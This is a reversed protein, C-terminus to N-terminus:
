VGHVIHSLKQVFKQLEDAQNQLEQTVSSTEEASSANGQTVQNMTSVADNIEHIGHVQEKSSEKVLSVLQVASEIMGVTESIIASSEKALHLGKKTQGRSATLLTATEGAASSSQAALARVEEAVVAFGRGADGARAAEVAANLALLNTQMAIEEILKIIATTQDSTQNLENISQLLQQTQAMVQQIQTQISEMQNQASISNQENTTSIASIEELSASIEEISAAQENAGAAVGESAANVEICAQRMTNAGESLHNGLDLLPSVISKGMIIKLFLLLFLLTFLGVLGLEWFISAIANDVFTADVTFLIIGIQKNAFDRVPFAAYIQDDVEQVTLAVSGQQLFSPPIAHQSISSGISSVFVYKNAIVPHKKIDQLKSAIALYEANMYVSISQNSDISGAVIEDYDALMEVSGVYGMKPFIIPVLGRVVFGGRGVEIGKVMTQTRSIELVTNRFGSLDDSVDIWSGNRQMQRERWLRILSRANPLHFHLQLPVGIGNKYSAAYDGLGVRLSERAKQVFPDAEDNINGHQVMQYAEQVIKTSSFIAAKEAAQTASQVVMRNMELEKATAAKHVYDMRLYHLEKFILGYLLFGAICIAGLVPVMIKKQISVHALM